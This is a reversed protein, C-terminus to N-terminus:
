GISAMAARKERTAGVDVKLTGPDIIVGYQEAADDRTVYGELVDKEVLEPDREVPNGYGGGGPADIMVVDGPKLHTLGYPNGEKGNVLFIAKQGQKGGFLGEPPHRYRGSQMALSVPPLPAYEDDPIRLVMRRGLGGKMRGPGGSDPILERKECDFAYREGPDGGAYQRRQRSLYLRLKWRGRFQRGHGEGSGCPTGRNEMRTRAM